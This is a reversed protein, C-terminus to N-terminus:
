LKFKTRSQSQDVVWYCYGIAIGLLSNNELIFIIAGQHHRLKHRIQPAWTGRTSM